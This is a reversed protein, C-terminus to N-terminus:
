FLLILVKFIFLKFTILFSGQFNNSCPEVAGKFHWSMHKRQQKHKPPFSKDQFGGALNVGITLTKWGLENDIVFTNTLFSYLIDAFWACCGLLFHYKHSSMSLGRDISKTIRNSMKIYDPSINEGTLWPSDKIKQRLQKLRCRKIIQLSIKVQKTLNISAIM